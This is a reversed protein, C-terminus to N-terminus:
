NKILERIVAAACCCGFVAPMYSITGVTSGTKGSDEDEDGTVAHGPVEEPSFVAQFGTYIGQRHLRKRVAKALPCNRTRSIDATKVQGPDLKGGSGMSSVLPLGRRICKAILATKPSLTDIADVVYDFGAALAEDTFEDRLFRYLPIIEADPNIDRLREAMVETKIRGETSSLAPLQRNRNSSEIRDGDAITISGIGARGLMEAAYAGVGGVGAVLVRSQRLIKIKEPTLLLATRQQWQPVSFNKSGNM